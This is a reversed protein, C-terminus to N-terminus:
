GINPRLASTAPWTSAARREYTPGLRVFWRTDLRQYNNGFEDLVIRANGRASVELDQDLTRVHYQWGQPLRLRDGLTALHKVNLDPDVARSFSQLVYVAGSPAILEHVRSGATFEWDTTREVTSEVYAVREHVNRDMDPIRVRAAVRMAIDGINTVDGEDLFRVTATDMMSRQPGNTWVADGHLEATLVKPDLARLRSDFEKDSMELPLGMSSYVTSSAGPGDADRTYIIVEAQPVGRLHDATLTVAGDGRTALKADSYFTTSM